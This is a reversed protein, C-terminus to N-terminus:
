SGRHHGVVVDRLCKGIRKQSFSNKIAVRKRVLAPLDDLLCFTEVLNKMAIATTVLM